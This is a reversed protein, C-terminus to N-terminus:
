ERNFKTYWKLFWYQHYMERWAVHSQIMESDADKPYLLGIADLEKFISHIDEDSYLQRGYGHEIFYEILKKRVAERGERNWSGCSLNDMFDRLLQAPTIDMLKCLLLFQYPLTFHFIAQRNFDGTQWKNDRKGTKSPDPKRRNKKVPMLLPIDKLNVNIV